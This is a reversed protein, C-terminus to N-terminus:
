PKRAVAYVVESREEFDEPGLSGLRRRASELCVTQTEPPLRSLRLRSQGHRTRHALFEDPTNTARYEGIWSRVPKLGEQAMLAEVKDRTDVVEFRAFDPDPPPAGHATLEEAWVEMARPYSENGWTATALVGGSRLVRAMEAVGRSPDFLHFLVFALIGADVCGDRIGLRSADTVVRPFGAPARSLMGLSLDAGIVTAHPAQQKLEPLLAGVGAGAELVVGARDLSLHPLLQRALPLLEPAWLDEYDEAAASYLESVKGRVQRAPDPDSSIPEAAAIEVRAGM